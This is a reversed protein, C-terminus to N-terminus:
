MTTPIDRKLAARMTAAINTQTAAAAPAELIAIIVKFTSTVFVLTSSYDYSGSKIRAVLPPQTTKNRFMLWSCVPVM